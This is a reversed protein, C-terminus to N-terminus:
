RFTAIRKVYIGIIQKIRENIERFLKIDNQKLIKTLEFQNFQSLFLSSEPHYSLHWPEPSVGSMDKQFPFFFGFDASHQLLWLYLAHCPGNKAYETDTLKLDNKSINKSDFVDIDTGWHHRSCGPLASWTLILDVLKSKSYDTFHVRQNDSNFLPRKGTAKDNWIQAQRTFSRFGSCVSLVIGDNKAAQQMHSFAKATEATLKIDAYDVLHQETLGYLHPNVIESHM